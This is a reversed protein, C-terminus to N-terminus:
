RRASSDWWRVSCAPASTGSEKSASRSSTRAPQKGGRDPDEVKADEVGMSELSVALSESVRRVQDNLQAAYKTNWKVQLDQLLFVGLVVIGAIFAFDVLVTLLVAIARPVRRKTLRQTIPFSVTAVFFALLM